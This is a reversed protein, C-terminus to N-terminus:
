KVITPRHLAPNNFDPVPGPPPPPILKGNDDISCGETFDAPWKFKNFHVWCDREIFFIKINQPFSSPDNFDMDRGYNSNPLMTSSTITVPRGHPNFGLLTKGINWHMEVWEPSVVLNILHWEMYMFFPHMVPAPEYMMMNWFHSSFAMFKAFKNAYRYYWPVEEYNRFYMPPQHGSIWESHMVYVWPNWYWMNANRTDQWEPLFNTRTGPAPYLMVQEPQKALVEAVFSNYLISYEFLAFYSMAAFISGLIVIMTKKFWLGHTKHLNYSKVWLNPDVYKPDIHKGPTLIFITTRYIAKPSNKIFSWILFMNSRILAFSVWYVGSCAFYILKIPLLLLLYLVMLTAKKLFRLIDM